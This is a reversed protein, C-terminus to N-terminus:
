QFHWKSRCTPLLAGAVAHAGEEITALALSPIPARPHCLVPLVQLSGQSNDSCALFLPHQRGVQFALSNILDFLPIPALLLPRGGSLEQALSSVVIESVALPSYAGVACGVFWLATRVLARIANSTAALQLRPGSAPKRYHNM